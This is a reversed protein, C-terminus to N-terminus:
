VYEVGVFFLKLIENVVIWDFVVFKIFLMLGFVELFM